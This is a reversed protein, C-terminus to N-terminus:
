GASHHKGGRAKKKRRQGESKETKIWLAEASATFVWRSIEAKLDRGEPGPCWKETRGPGDPSGAPSAEPPAMAHNQTCAMRQGTARPLGVNAEAVKQPYFYWLEGAVQLCHLLWDTDQAERPGAEQTDEGGWGTVTNIFSAAAINPPDAGWVKVPGLCGAVLDVCIGRPFRQGGEYLPCLQGEGNAWISSHRKWLLGRNRGQPSEPLLM